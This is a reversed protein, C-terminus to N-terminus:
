NCDTAALVQSCVPGMVQAPGVHQDKHHVGHVPLAQQRGALLQVRQQGLFGPQRQHHQGVLLHTGGQLEGPPTELWIAERTPSWPSIQVGWIGWSKCFGRERPRRGCGTGLHPQWEENPCRGMGLSVLERLAGADLIGVPHWIAWAPLWVRAQPRKGNVGMWTVARCSCLAGPWGGAFPEQCGGTPSGAQPSPAM